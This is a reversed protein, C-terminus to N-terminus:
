FIDNATNQAHFDSIQGSNAVNQAKSRKNAPFECCRAVLMRVLNRADHQSSAWPYPVFALKALLMGHFCLPCLAAICIKEDVHVLLDSAPSHQYASCGSRRISAIYTPLSSSSFMHNNHAAARLHPFEAYGVHQGTIPSSPGGKAVSHVKPLAAPLLLATCFRLQPHSTHIRACCSFSSLGRHLSGMVLMGIM